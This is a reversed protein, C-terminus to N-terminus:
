LILYPVPCTSVRSLLAYGSIKENTERDNAKFTMFMMQPKGAFKSAQMQQFM